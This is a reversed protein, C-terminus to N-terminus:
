KNGNRAIDLLRKAAGAPLEPAYRREIDDFRKFRTKKCEISAAAFVEATLAGILAAPEPKEKRNM